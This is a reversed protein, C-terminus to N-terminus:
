RSRLVAKTGGSAAGVAPCFVALSAAPPFFATAIGDLAYCVLAGGVAVGATTVAGNVVGNVFVQSPDNPSRESDPSNAYNFNISSNDGQHITIDSNPPFGAFNNTYAYAPRTIGTISIALAVIIAILYRLM